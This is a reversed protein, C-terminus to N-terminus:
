LVNGLSGIMVLVLFTAVLFVCVVLLIIVFDDGGTKGQVLFILAFAVMVVTAISVLQIAQYSTRIISETTSEYDEDGDGNGNGDGNEPATYSYVVAVYDLQPTSNNTNNLGVRYYFNASTWGLASLDITNNTGSSLSQWSSGGSSNTWTNNNQSFLIQATTQAPLSSLTYDFSDITSVDQESLLNTSYLIGSDAYHSLYAYTINYPSSAGTEYIYSVTDGYAQGSATHCDTRPLTNTSEDIWDVENSWAGEFTKYYIHNDAKAYFCYLDDLLAYYCLTPTSTEMSTFNICLNTIDSDTIDNQSLNWSLTGYLYRYDYAEDCTINLTDVLFTSTRQTHNYVRCLLSTGSKTVTLYYLTDYVLAVSDSEPYADNVRERLYLTPNSAGELWLVQLGDHWDLGSGTQNSLGWILVQATDSYTSRSMTDVLHTFDSFYSDGYDNYFYATENEAVNSTINTASNVTIHNNPDNEVWGDTFDEYTRESTVLVESGWSGSTRNVYVISHDVALFCLHVDDGNSVVDYNQASTTSLYSASVTEESEWATGNYLRGYMIEPDDNLWARGYVCYLQGSSLSVLAPSHHTRSALELPYGSTTSWTGNGYDSRVVNPYGTSSNYYSFWPVGNSDVALSPDYLASDAVQQRSAYWTISGDTELNGKRYFTESSGNLYIFHVDDTAEELEVDLYASVSATVSSDLNTPDNWTSGDTSSSFLFNGSDEYWVWHKNSANFTQHQKPLRVGIDSDTTNVVSSGSAPEGELVVYAGTTNVYVNNQSAIQSEDTFTDSVSLGYALDTLSLILLLTLLPLLGHKKRM